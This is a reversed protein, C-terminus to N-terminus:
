ASQKTQGGRHDRHRRTSCESDVESSSCSVEVPDCPQNNSLFQKLRELSQENPIRSAMIGPLGLLLERASPRAVELPREQQQDGNGEAQNASTTSASAATPASLATSTSATAPSVQSTSSTVRRPHTQKRQRTMGSSGSRRSQVIEESM